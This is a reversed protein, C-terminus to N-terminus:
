SPSGGAADGTRRARAASISGYLFLPVVGLCIGAFLWLWMSRLPGFAIQYLALPIGLFLLWPVPHMTAFILLLTRSSERQEDPREMQDDIAQRLTGIWRSVPGYGLLGILCGLLLALYPPIGTVRGLKAYTCLGTGASRIRQTKGGGGCGQLIQADVM